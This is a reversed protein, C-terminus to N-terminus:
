LITPEGIRTLRAPERMNDPVILQWFGSSTEVWDGPNMLLLTEQIERLQSAAVMRCLISKWLKSDLNIRGHITSSIVVLYYDPHASNPAKSKFLLRNGGLAQRLDSCVFTRNISAEPLSPDFDSVDNFRLLGSFIWQRRIKGGCRIGTSNYYANHRAGCRSGDAGRGYRAWWNTGFNLVKVLM